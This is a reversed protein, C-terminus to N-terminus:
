VNNEMRKRCYIPYSKGEVTRTFYRFKSDWAGEGHPYPYTEYNENVHSKIEEFMSKEDLEHSNMMKKTHKNEDELYKLVKKDDRSDSRLWFYHDELYIPPNMLNDGRNEGNVDGFTVMKKERIAIPADNMNEM